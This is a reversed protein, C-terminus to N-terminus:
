AERSVHSNSQAREGVWHVQIEGATGIADDEWLDSAVEQNLDWFSEPFGCEWQSNEYPNRCAVVGWNQSARQQQSKVEQKERGWKGVM